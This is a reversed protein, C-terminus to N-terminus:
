CGPILLEVAYLSTRATIYLTKNEKGGFVINAASEEGPMEITGLYIGEANFVQIGTYTTIYINGCSDAKMGDAEGFRQVEPLGKANEPANLKCFIKGGRLMGDERVEYRWINVSATDDIYLYKEDPSFALGNPKISDNAVRITEGSPSCYYTAEAEQTKPGYTFFPDTIYYGGKRDCIVENTAHFPKGQYGNSVVRVYEGTVPDIEDISGTDMKCIVLKGGPSMCMGNAYGSNKYVVSFEGEEKMSYILQALPDTFYLVSNKQDWVPGELFVFPTKNIKRVRTNQQLIEEFKVTVSM